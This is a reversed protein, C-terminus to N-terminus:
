CRCCCSKCCASGGAPSAAAKALRGVAFSCNASNTASCFSFRNNRRWTPSNFAARARSVAAGGSELGSTLPLAGPLVAKDIKPRGM